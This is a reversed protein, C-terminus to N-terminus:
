FSIPQTNLIFCNGLLKLSLARQETTDTEKDGWPSHGM